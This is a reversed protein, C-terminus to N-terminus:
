ESPAADDLATSTARLLARALAPDDVTRAIILAGVLGSLTALARDRRAADEPEPLQQEILELLAEIRRTAVARVEPSERPLESGLAALLCGEEPSELHARSLYARLLATLGSRGPRRKAVAQQLTAFSQMSATEAAEAVLHAKSPFHAYFGGHTLGASKMLDAVGIGAVGHSRFASAATEVIRAHTAAKRGSGREDEGKSM